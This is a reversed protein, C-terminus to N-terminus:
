RSDCGAERDVASDGAAFQEFRPKGGLAAVVSASDRDRTGDPAGVSQRDACEGGAGGHNLENRGARDALCRWVREGGRDGGARCYGDGASRERRIEALQRLVGELRLRSDFSRLVDMSVLALEGGYIDPLVPPQARITVSWNVLTDPDGAVISAGMPLSYRLLSQITAANKDSM